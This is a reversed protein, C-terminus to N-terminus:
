SVLPLYKWLKTPAGSLARDGRKSKGAGARYPALRKPMLGLPGDRSVVVIGVCRAHSRRLLSPVIKGRNIGLTRGLCSGHANNRIPYRLISSRRWHLKGRSEHTTLVAVEGRNIGPGRFKVTTLPIFALPTMVPVVHHGHLERSRTGIPASQNAPRALCSVSRVHSGAM